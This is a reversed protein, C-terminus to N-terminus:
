LIAPNAIYTSDEDFTYLPENSTKIEIGVSMTVSFMQMNVASYNLHLQANLWKM